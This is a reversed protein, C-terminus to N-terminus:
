GLVRPPKPGEPKRLQPVQPKPPLKGQSPRQPQQIPNLMEPKIFERAEPDKFSATPKVIEEVGGLDWVREEEEETVANHPSPAETKEGPKPASVVPFPTASSPPAAEFPLDVAIGAPVTSQINSLFSLDDPKKRRGLIKIEPKAPLKLTGEFSDADTLRIVSEVNLVLGMAVRRISTVEAERPSLMKAISADISYDKVEVITRLRGEADEAFFFSAEFNKKPNAHEVLWEGVFPNTM